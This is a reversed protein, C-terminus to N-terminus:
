RSVGSISEAVLNGLGGKKLQATLSRGVMRPFFREILAFLREPGRPYVSDVDHLVADWIGTAVAEPDDLKMGFPEVFTEIAPIADTRTGRPAAYTVGVGLGTLERRLATSFGRLGFKSASYAAFLPFAIDGFVSGINVVRGGQGAALLPLFERTLAIPSVLNTAFVRELDSDSITALPGAEVIGANNILIDLGGWEAAVRERLQRRTAGDTIDGPLILCDAARALRDRTAELADRRRGALAVAVGRRSAEIALARGIGSGAGTVLAKRGELQM